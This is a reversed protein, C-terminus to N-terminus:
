RTERLGYDNTERTLNPSYYPDNAIVQGWKARMAEV